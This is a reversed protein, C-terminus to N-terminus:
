EEVEAVQIQLCLGECKRIAEQKALEKNKNEALLITGCWGDSSIYIQYSGDILQRLKIKM